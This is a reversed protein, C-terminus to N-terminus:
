RTKWNRWLPLKTRTTPISGVLDCHGDGNLSSTNVLKVMGANKTGWPLSWSGVKGKSSPRELHLQAIPAISVIIHISCM